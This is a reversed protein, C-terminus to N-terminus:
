LIGMSATPVAVVTLARTASLVHMASTNRRLWATSTMTSRQWRAHQLSTTPPSTWPANARTATMQGVWSQMEMFGRQALTVIGGWRTTSVNAASWPSLIAPQLTATANASEAFGKIFSIRWGPTVTGVDRVHSALTVLPALM